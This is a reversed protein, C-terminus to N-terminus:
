NREACPPERSLIGVALKDGAGVTSVVLRASHLGAASVLLLPLGGGRVAVEQVRGKAGGPTSDAADQLRVLCLRPDFHGFNQDRKHPSDVKQGEHSFFHLRAGSLLPRSLLFLAGRLLRLLRRRGVYRRRGWLM